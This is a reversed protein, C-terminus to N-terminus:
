EKPVDAGMSSAAPPASAFKDKVGQTATQSLAGLV